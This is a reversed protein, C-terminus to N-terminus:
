RTSGNRDKNRMEL